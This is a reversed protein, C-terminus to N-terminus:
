SHLASPPSETSCRIWQVAMVSGKVFAIPLQFPGKKPGRRANRDEVVGHQSCCADNIVKVSMCKCHDAEAGLAEEQLLSEPGPAPSNSTM